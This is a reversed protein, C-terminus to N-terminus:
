GLAGHVIDLATRLRYADIQGPASARGATGFTLCSGMCEGCLRTIVGAPGMAIAIMPVHLVQGARTMVLAAHLAEEGTRTMVAAKCVDAGLAEQKLLWDGARQMEGIEGFEHSSGVVIVENEHAAKVIRAFAKDGVSLECDIAECLHSKVMETLLAEYAVADPSGAGGDRVTRQTFLLPIGAASERVIRCAAKAAEASPDSSLSDIRLEIIEAGAACAECAARRIQEMDSGMVPVCIKPAGDGLIVSGLRATKKENKLVRNPETEM